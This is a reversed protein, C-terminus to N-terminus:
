DFLLFLIVFFILSIAPGASSLFQLLGFIKQELQLFMLFNLVIFELFLLYNDLLFAVDDDLSFKISKLLFKIGVFISWWYKKTLKVQYVQM